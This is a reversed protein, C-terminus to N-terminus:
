EPDGVRVLVRAVGRGDWRGIDHSLQRRGGSIREEEPEVGGAGTISIPV